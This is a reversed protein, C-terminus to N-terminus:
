EDYANAQGGPRYGGKWEGDPADDDIARTQRRADASAQKRGLVELHGGGGLIGYQLGDHVHSFENKDPETGFRDAGAIQIRRLRYGSNFGKRLVRCRPSVLVGPQGDILRTLPLRASWPGYRETLLKNLLDGFKRAGMGTAPAVLEDLVRWQGSPMRQLIVAAPTLGADAGIVLPLDRVPELPVAAAHLDDNWDEYVPQGDRTAGWRNLIMRRIYWKPQGVIQQDYYGPVLNRLNEAAPNLEYRGGGALEHMAGPQQFFEWGPTPAEVFVRYLWHETDSANFDAWVGRWTAGAFSAAADVAPYRGVRGIVYTLTEETLKDVENLYAGTGEWGPMVMESSNEGLGIFEVIMEVTTGDPLAFAVTHTAPQGGSGGVWHGLSQPVWRHWSKITTKELQRYTERIVAFKTRRVQDRPHPAQRMARYLMDMLCAGTKGSGVPGMIARVFANSAGFRAAVPGPPLYTTFPNSM